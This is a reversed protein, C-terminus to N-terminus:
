ISPPLQKPEIIEFDADETVEKDAQFGPPAFLLENPVGFAFCIVDMDSISLGDIFVDNDDSDNLKDFKINMKNVRDIGDQISGQRPKKNKM